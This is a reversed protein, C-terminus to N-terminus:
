FLLFKSSLFDCIFKKVLPYDFTACLQSNQKDNLASNLAATLDEEKIAAIKTNKNQSHSEPLVVQLSHDSPKEQKVTIFECIENETPQIIASSENQNSVISTNEDNQPKISDDEPVAAEIQSLKQLFAVAQAATEHMTITKEQNTSSFEIESGIIKITTIHQQNHPYTLRYIM